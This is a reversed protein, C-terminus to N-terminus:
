VILAHLAKVSSEIESNDVLFAVNIESASQSVMKAKIGRETLRGFIRGLVDIRDKLEEGIVCIIAKEHEVSAEGLQELETMASELREGSYNRDTVLSVTAESTTAMHVGIEHRTLIDFSRALIQVASMLRPSAIAILNVDEKYVISKAYRETRVAEPLILTGEDEPRMTNLVRV